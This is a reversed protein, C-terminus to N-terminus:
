TPLTGRPPLFSPAFTLDKAQRWSPTAKHNVEKKLIDKALPASEQSIGPFAKLFTHRLHLGWFLRNLCGPAICAQTPISSVTPLPFQLIHGLLVLTVPSCCRHSALSRVQMRAGEAQMRKVMMLQEVLASSPTSAPPSLAGVEPCMWLKLIWLLVCHNVSR